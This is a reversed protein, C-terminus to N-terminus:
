KEADKKVDKGNRSAVIFVAIAWSNRLALVILGLMGAAVLTLGRQPASGLMAGGAIFMGFAVAPLIVYQVVDIREHFRHRRSGVQASLTFLIGAAGAFCCCITASLRSQTPITLVAALSLVSGFDVVTPTLYLRIRNKESTGAGEAALTIVVFLLGVLTAAAASTVVYFNAWRDLPLGEDGM